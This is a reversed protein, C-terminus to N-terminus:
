HAERACLMKIVLIGDYDWVYEQIAILEDLFYKFVVPANEVDDFAYHLLDWVTDMKDYFGQPLPYKKTLRRAGLIEKNVPNRCFFKMLTLCENPNDFFGPLVTSPVVFGGSTWESADPVYFVLMKRSRAFHVTQNLLVSKGSGHPGDFIFGAKNDRLEHLAEGKSVWSDMKQIYKNMLHAQKRYLFCRPQLPPAFAKVINGCFGEQFFAKMQENPLRYMSGIDSFTLTDPHKAAPVEYTPEKNTDGTRLAARKPDQWRMIDFVEKKVDGDLQTPSVRDFPDVETSWIKWTKMKCLVANSRKM